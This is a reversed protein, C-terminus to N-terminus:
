DDDYRRFTTADPRPLLEARYGRRQMTDFRGLEVPFTAALTNRLKEAIPFTENNYYLHAHYGYAAPSGASANSISARGDTSWITETKRPLRLLRAVM